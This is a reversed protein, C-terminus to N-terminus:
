DGCKVKFNNTVSFSLTFESVDREASLIQLEATYAGPPLCYYSRSSLISTITEGGDIYGDRLEGSPKTNSIVLQSNADRLEFSVELPFTPRYGGGPFFFERIHACHEQASKSSSRKSVYKLGFKVPCHKQFSHSKINFNFKQKKNTNANVELSVQELPFIIYAPSLAFSNM